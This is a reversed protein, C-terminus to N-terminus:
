DRANRNRNILKQIIEGLRFSADVIIFSALLAVLGTTIPGDFSGPKYLIKGTYDLVKLLGEIALVISIFALTISRLTKEVVFYHVLLIVCAILGVAIQSISFAM